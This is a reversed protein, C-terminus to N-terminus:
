ELLTGIRKWRVSMRPIRYFLTRVLYGSITEGGMAAGTDLDTCYRRQKEPPFGELPFGSSVEPDYFPNFNRMYAACIQDRWDISFYIFIPKGLIRERSIYSVPAFRSDKSDDRNDGMVFYHNDPIVCGTTEWTECLGDPRPMDSWEVIYHEHNGTKSRFLVPLDASASKEYYDPHLVEADDSDTLVQRSISGDMETLMFTQWPAADRAQPTAAAPKYEVIALVPIQHFASLNCDYDPQLARQLKLESSCVSINRIRIRDGPLGIVRKVYQKSEEQPPIFTIIEGRKPDDIRMLEINTFPLRLSYRMRNVFLYDGVKLTPIMSGSPINNADLVSYKFAFVLLLLIGFSFLSGITSGSSEKEDVIAASEDHDESKQSGSSRTRKEAM